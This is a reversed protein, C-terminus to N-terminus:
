ERGRRGYNPIQAVYTHFPFRSKIRVVVVANHEVSHENSAIRPEKREKRLILKSGREKEREGGGETDGV